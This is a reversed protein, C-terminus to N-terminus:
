DKIIIRIKKEAAESNILEMFLNREFDLLDEENVAELGSLSQLQHAIHRSHNDLKNMFEETFSFNPINISEQKPKPMFNHAICNLYDIAEELLLDNNMNVQIKMNFYDELQYASPTKYQHLINQLNRTLIISDQAQLILEKLGGWSPVLGVGVEVLGAYTEINAIIHSSHLLLECGGGLAYGQVCAIVPIKAYKLKQMARQGAKIFSELKFSNGSAKLEIIYKLDAGLSFYDQDNYILLPNKQYEAIKVAENIVEFVENNLINMKTHLSLCLIENKLQWISASGNEYLPKESLRIKILSGNKSNPLKHDFYTYRKDLLYNPLSLDFNYANDILYEFGFKDLQTILEFPGFKWNYGLKMAKDIENPSECVQPILSCVYIGFEVLIKKFCLGVNSKENLLEAINHFNVKYDKLVKYQWVGLDLVEKIKSNNNKVIRYFGGHGKRGTYGTKIMSEIQPIQYHIKSFRDESPLLSILSKAILEMVDIGILDMLGFVGTKPLGLLKSCINDIVAIEVNFEIACRLVHELFFCGVRNAIFGPTDNSIVVGKGLKEYIFKQLTKKSVENSNEDIVLELLRMHRPPNFFHTIFFNEKFDESLKSKLQQLPFTSTNSSIYVGKKLYPEITKYLNLKTNLDEIIVEIIWDYENLQSLNDELNGVKILSLLKEDALADSDHVVRKLAQETLINRNSNNIIRDLILVEHGSNAIHAAIGAGMVGSGIVCVKKIM